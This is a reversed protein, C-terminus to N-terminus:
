FSVEQIEQVGGLTQLLVFYSSDERDLNLYKERTGINKQSCSHLTLRGKSTMLIQLVRCCVTCRDSAKSFSLINRTPSSPHPQNPVPRPSLSPHPPTPLGLTDDRCKIEQLCSRHGGPVADCLLPSVRAKQCWDRAWGGVCVGAGSSGVQRPLRHMKRAM